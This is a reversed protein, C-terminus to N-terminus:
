YTLSHPPCRCDPVYDATTNRLPHNSQCRVTSPTSRAGSGTASRRLRSGRMTTAWTSSPPGSLAAGTCRGYNPWTPPERRPVSRGPWLPLAPASRASVTLDAGIDAPNFRVVPVSRRNLETIVMDATIDDAETAVLVPRKETANM